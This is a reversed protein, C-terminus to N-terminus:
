PRRDYGRRMKRALWDELRVRADAVEDFFESRRRGNTGLRGWERVLANTGFLTPQLSLVYYRAMNRSPDIRQLVVQLPSTPEEHPDCMGFLPVQRRERDLPYKSDIPKLRNV